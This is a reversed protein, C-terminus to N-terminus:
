RDADYDNAEMIEKLIKHAKNKIDNVTRRKIGTEDSKDQDTMNLWYEMLLVNRSQEDIRSLADYLMENHVTVAYHLVEFTMDAKHVSKPLDTHTATETWDDGMECFLSENEIRTRNDRLFMKLENVIARKIYADFRKEVEQEYSSTGAM